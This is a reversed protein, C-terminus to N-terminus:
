EQVWSAQAMQRLEVNTLHEIVEFCSFREALLCLSLHSLAKENACDQVSRRTWSVQKIDVSLFYVKESASSLLQHNNGELVCLLQCALLIFAPRDRNGNFM